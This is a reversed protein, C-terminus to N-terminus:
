GAAGMRASRVDILAQFQRLALMAEAESAGATIRVLWATADAPVVSFRQLGLRRRRVVGFVRELAGPAQGVELEFVRESM